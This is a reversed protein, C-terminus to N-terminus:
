LYNFLNISSLQAFTQQAAKLNTQQESFQSIASAYDLDTLDSMYTQDILKRQDGSANLSDLEALRSGVSSRITLVNDYANNIKVNATSLANQLQATGVTGLAPTKLTNILDRMTTFVDAGSTAASAITFSDGVAPAGDVRIKLGGFAIPQGATWAGTFSTAGDTVTYQGLPGFSVQYDKADGVSAASFIGSGTNGAAAVPVHPASGQVSQFVTAGDDAGAMQRSVDVQVLRQGLDGDYTVTGNAQETFAPADTKFGSFLYQGNGDGANAVGLLQSFQGELATALTSRDADSLTGNGAQVILTKVNELVSTASQLASEETSLMQTCRSRSSAYQATEAMSQSVGLARAAAVPDDSPTLLKTGAGLQQQTRFLKQQLSSMGALNVNFFAQTSIRM